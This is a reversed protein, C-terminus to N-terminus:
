KDLGRCMQQLRNLLLARGFRDEGATSDSKAVAPKRWVELTSCKHLPQEAVSFSRPFAVSHRDADGSHSDCAIAASHRVLPWPIVTFLLLPQSAVPCICAPPLPQQEDVTTCMAMSCVLSMIFHQCSRCVRQRCGYSAAAGCVHAAALPCGGRVRPEKVMTGNRKPVNAQV